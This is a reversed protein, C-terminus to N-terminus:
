PRGRICEILCRSLETDRWDWLREHHLDVAAPLRNWSSPYCFAGIGHVGIAVAITLYSLAVLARSHTQMWDLGFALVIAFLPIVDTWYRAGFCHGGWWVSYKSLLFFYPVLAALLWAILGQSAIRRAVAPVAAVGLAVAIWPSFVFLGRNPSFLTGAAGEVLSGSWAGAVGHFQPHLEELQAQGGILTGFHWYNYYLLLGAGLIPAPLFWALPRPQTRVIWAVIVAAFLSDLLRSTFLFTTAIGGLVLRWRSVKGPHLLAMAAILALAAPGHQWPAQSAHTWLDSGLFAAVVAPLAGRRLGLQLLFRYLIVAALVMLVSMSWKAMRDCAKAAAVLQREWRPNWSDLHAIQPAMLPLIVLAPAVPYRSVMRGRSIAVFPVMQDADRLLPSFRDLTFGDGRVLAVPLLTAAVTDDTGIPRDNASYVLYLCAGLILTIWWGKSSQSMMPTIEYRTRTSQQIAITDTVTPRFLRV